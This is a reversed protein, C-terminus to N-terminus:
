FSKHKIAATTPPLDDDVFNKLTNLNKIENNVKKWLFNFLYHEAM